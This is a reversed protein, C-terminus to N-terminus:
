ETKNIIKLLEEVIERAEREEVDKVLIRGSKFLSISTNRFKFIIVFPTEAKVEAQERLSDAIENLKLEVRKQSLFEIAKDSKCPDIIFDKLELKM